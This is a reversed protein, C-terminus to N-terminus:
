KTVEIQVGSEIKEKVGTGVKQTLVPPCGSRSVRRRRVGDASIKLDARSRAQCVIREDLVWGEPWERGRWCSM